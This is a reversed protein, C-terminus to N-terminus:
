ITLKQQADKKILDEHLALDDNIAAAVQRTETRAYERICKEWHDPSLGSTDNLVLRYGHLRRGNWEQWEDTILYGRNQLDQIRAPPYTARTKERLEETSHWRGDALVEYTRECQTQKNRMM